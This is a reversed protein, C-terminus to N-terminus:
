STGRSPHPPLSRLAALAATQGMLFLCPMNLAWQATVGAMLLLQHASTLLHGAVLLAFLLPRHQRLCEVLGVATAPLVTIYQHYWSTAPLLHLATLLVGWELMEQRRGNAPAGPPWVSWVVFLALMVRAATSMFSALDPAHPLLRAFLGTLTQNDHFGAAGGSHIYHGLNAFYNFSAGPGAITGVAAGILVFALAGLILGRWRSRWAFFGLLALPAVKIHVGLALAAAALGDRKVSWARWALCLCLFMFANIQGLRLTMYLPLSTALLLMVLMGNKGGGLSRGLLWAGLLASCCSAALWLTWIARAGAHIGLSLLAANFPPYKYPCTFSAFGWQKALAAYDATTLAYPDGHAAYTAAAIFYVSFDVGMKGSLVIYLFCALLLAAALATSSAFPVGTNRPNSNVAAHM